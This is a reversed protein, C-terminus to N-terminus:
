KGFDKPEKDFLTPPSKLQIFSDVM